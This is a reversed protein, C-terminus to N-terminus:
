VTNKNWINMMNVTSTMHEVCAGADHLYYTAGWQRPVVDFRTHSLLLLKYLDKIHIIISKITIYM